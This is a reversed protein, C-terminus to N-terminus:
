IETLSLFIQELDPKIETVSNINGGENVLKTVIAPVIETNELQVKILNQYPFVKQVGKFNQLLTVFKETVPTMEINVFNGKQLQLEKTLNKITDLKMLIGYNIIGVTKCIDQVENLLHSSMFISM